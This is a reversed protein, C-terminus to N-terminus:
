PARIDPVVYWVKDDDQCAVRRDSKGIQFHRCWRGSAAYYRRNARISQQGLSPVTVSTNAGDAASEMFHSFELTGADYNYADDREPETGGLSTCAALTIGLLLIGIIPRAKSLM